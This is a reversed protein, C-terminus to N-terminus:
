SRWPASQCPLALSMSKRFMPLLISKSKLELRGDAMITAKQTGTRNSSILLTELRGHTLLIKYTFYQLTAAHVCQVTEDFMYDVLTAFVRYNVKEANICSRCTYKSEVHHHKPVPSCAKRISDLKPTWIIRRADKRIAIFLQTYLRLQVFSWIAHFRNEAFFQQTITLTYRSAKVEVPPSHPWRKLLHVRPGPMYLTSHACETKAISRDSIDLSSQRYM